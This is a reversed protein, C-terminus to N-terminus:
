MESTIEKLDPRRERIMKPMGRMYSRALTKLPQSSTWICGLV